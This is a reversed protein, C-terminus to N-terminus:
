ETIFLIPFGNIPDMGVLEDKHNEKLINYHEECYYHNVIWDKLYYEDCISCYEIEAKIQRTELCNKINQSVTYIKFNEDDTPITQNRSESNADYDIYLDPTIYFRIMNGQTNKILSLTKNLIELINNICTYPISLYNQGREYTGLGKKIDTELRKQFELPSKYFYDTYSFHQTGQLEIDLNYEPLFFDYPLEKINKTDEYRKQVQYQINNTIFYEEAQKELKSQNCYPCGSKEKTRHSISAIYNHCEKKSCKWNVKQNTGKFYKKM